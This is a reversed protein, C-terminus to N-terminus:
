RTCIQPSRLSVGQDAPPNKGYYLMQDKAM